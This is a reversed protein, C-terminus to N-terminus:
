SDSNMQDITILSVLFLVLDDFNINTKPSFPFSSYGYFFVSLASNLALLSLVCVIASLSSDFGAVNTSSMHM